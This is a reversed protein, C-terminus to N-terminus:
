AQVVPFGRVSASVFVPHTDNFVFDFLFYFYSHFVFANEKVFLSLLLFDPSFFCPFFASFVSSTFILFPLLIALVVSQCVVPRCRCVFLYYSLSVRQCVSLSVSLCISSCVMHCVLMSVSLCVLFLSVSLCIFSCVMHCVLM